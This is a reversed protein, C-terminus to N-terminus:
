IIFQDASTANAAGTLKYASGNLDLYADNNGDKVAVGDSFAQLAYTYYAITDGVTAYKIVEGEKYAYPNTIVLSDESKILEFQM